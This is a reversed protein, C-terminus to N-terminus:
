GAWDMGIDKVAARGKDVDMSDGIMNGVRGEGVRDESKKGVRHEAAMGLSGKDKGLAKKGLEECKLESYCNCVWSRVDLLRELDLRVETKGSGEEFTMSPYAHSLTKTALLLCLALM